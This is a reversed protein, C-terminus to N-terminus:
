IEEVKIILKKKDKRKIKTQFIRSNDDNIYEWKDEKIVGALKLGDFYPKLLSHFNDKDMFQPSYRHASIKFSTLPEKPAKGHVLHIIENKVKKFISNKAYKNVGLIKNSDTPAIFVELELSYNGM